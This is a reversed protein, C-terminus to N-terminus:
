RFSLHPAYNSGANSVDPVFNFFMKDHSFHGMICASWGVTLEVPFAQVWISSVSKMDFFVDAVICYYIIIGIVYLCPFGPLDREGKKTQETTTRCFPVALLLRRKDYSHLESKYIIKFSKM